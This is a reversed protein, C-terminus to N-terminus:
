GAYAYSSEGDGAGPTVGGDDPSALFSRGNPGARVLDRNVNAAAHDTTGTVANNPPAVIFAM